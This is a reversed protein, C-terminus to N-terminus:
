ENNEKVGLIIEKLVIDSNEKIIKCAIENETVAECVSCVSSYETKLGCDEDVNLAIMALRAPGLYAIGMAIPDETVKELMEKASNTKFSGFDLYPNGNTEIGCCSLLTNNPSHATSLGIFECPKRLSNLPRYNFIKPDLKENARGIAQLDSTSIFYLTGDKRPKIDLEKGLEQVPLKQGIIKSIKDPTLDQAIGM